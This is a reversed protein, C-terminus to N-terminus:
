CVAAGALTAQGPPIGPSLYRVESEAKNESRGSTSGVPQVWNSARPCPARQHLGLLDAEGPGSSPASPCLTTRSVCLFLDPCTEKEGDKGLKRGSPHLSSERAPGTFANKRAHQSTSSAEGALGQALGRYTSILCM